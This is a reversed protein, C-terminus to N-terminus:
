LDEKIFLWLIHLILIIYFFDYFYTYNGDLKKSKIENKGYIRGIILLQVFGAVHLLERSASERGAETESVRGDWAWSTWGSRLAGHM